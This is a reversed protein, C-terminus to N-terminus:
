CSYSYSLKISHLVIIFLKGTYPTGRSYFHYDYTMINVYDVNENIMSVDYCMDVFVPPAAVAISLIYTSHERQYERRIEHLLQMFHIRQSNSGNPFEFDLDIGDLSYKELISKVSQIFMRRTEHTSIMEPFGYSEDGGGVWLLIKLKDNRAKLLNSERFADILDEDIILTSNEVDIIGINLHTCLNANIDSIKLSKENGNFLKSAERGRERGRRLKNAFRPTTYYCILKKSHLKAHKEIETSYVYNGFKSPSLVVTDSNDSANQQVDEYNNNNNNKYFRSLQELRKHLFTPIDAILQNTNIPNNVQKKKSNNSKQPINLQKNYVENWFFFISTFVFMCLVAFIVFVVVKNELDLSM